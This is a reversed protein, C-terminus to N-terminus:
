EYGRSVDDSGCFGWRRCFLGVDHLGIEDNEDGCEGRGDEAVGKGRELLHQLATFDAVVRALTAPTLGPLALVM